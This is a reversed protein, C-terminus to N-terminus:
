GNIVDQVAEVAQTAQVAVARTKVAQYVATAMVIVLIFWLTILLGSFTVLVRLDIQNTKVNVDKKKQM